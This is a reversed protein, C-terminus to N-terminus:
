VCPFLTEHDACLGILLLSVFLSFSFPMLPLVDACDGSLGAEILKVKSPHHYRLARM